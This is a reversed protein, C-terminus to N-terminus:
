IAKNLQKFFQWFFKIDAPGVILNKYDQISGDRKLHEVGRILAGLNALALAAYFHWRTEYKSFTYFVGMILIFIIAMEIEPRGHENARNSIRVVSIAPMLCFSFVLGQVISIAPIFEEGYVFPIAYISLISMPITGALGILLAGRFVREITDANKATEPGSLYPLLTLQLAQSALGIGVGAVSFAVFYHGTAASAWISTVIIRDINKTFANAITAIHLRVGLSIATKFFSLNIKQRLQHRFKHFRYILPPLQSSLYILVVSIPSIMDLHYAVSIVILFMIPSFLRDINLRDFNLGATEVTTFARHLSGITIILTILGITVKPSLSQFNLRELSVLTTILLIGISLLLFAFLLITTIFDLPNSSTKRIKISFAQYYCNGLFALITQGWFLLSGYIGRGEAGLLRALIVGTILSLFLICTSAATTTSM